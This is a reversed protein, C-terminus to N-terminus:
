RPNFDSVAVPTDQLSEEVKQATVEIEELAPAAHIIPVNVTTSVIALAKALPHWYVKKKNPRTSHVM